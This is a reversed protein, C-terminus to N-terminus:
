ERADTTHIDRGKIFKIRVEETFGVHDHHKELKSDNETGLLLEHRYSDM